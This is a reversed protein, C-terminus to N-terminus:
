EAAEDYNTNMIKTNLPSAQEAPKGVRIVVETAHFGQLASFLLSAVYRMCINEHKARNHISIIKIVIYVCASIDRIYFSCRARYLLVAVSICVIKRGSTACRYVKISPTQKMKYFVYICSINIGRAYLKWVKRIDYYDNQRCEYPSKLLMYFLLM